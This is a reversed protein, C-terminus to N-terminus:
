VFSVQNFFIVISEAAKLAAPEFLMYICIGAACAVTGDHHTLHGHEVRAVLDFIKCMDDSGGSIVFKNM